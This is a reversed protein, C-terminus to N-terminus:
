LGHAVTGLNDLAPVLATHVHPLLEVGASSWGLVWVSEKAFLFTVSLLEPKQCIKEKCM